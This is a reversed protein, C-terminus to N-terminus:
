EERALVCQHKSGDPDSDRYTAQDDKIWIYRGFSGEYRSGSGTPVLSGTDVTDGREFRVSPLTTHFFYIVVENAPNGDCAWFAVRTPKDLLWMAVLQGDRRLYHTEVCDRLNDTKWCEDRGKIWGRQHERLLDEAEKAGVDLKKVADLAAAYRDAVLRDLQALDANKCVLEEASSEAKACNFSPGDQAFAQTAILLFLISVFRFM